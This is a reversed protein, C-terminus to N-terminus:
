KKCRYQNEVEEQTASDKGISYTQKYGGRISKANLVLKGDEVSSSEILPHKVKTVDEFLEQIAEEKTPIKEGIMNHSRLIMELFVYYNLGRQAPRWKAPKQLDLWPGVSAFGDFLRIVKDKVLEENMEVEAISELDVFAFCDSGCVSNSTYDGCLSIIKCKDKGDVEKVTQAPMLALSIYSKLSHQLMEDLQKKDTSNKALNNLSPEDTDYSHFRVNSPFLRIEQKIRDRYLYDFIREKGYDKIMWKLHHGDLHWTIFKNLESDYKPPISTVSVVPAIYFDISNKLKFGKDTQEIDKSLELGAAAREESQGGFPMSINSGIISHSERTVLCPEHDIKRARNKLSRAENRVALRGQFDNVVSGSGKVNIAYERGDINIVKVEGAKDLLTASRGSNLGQVGELDKEGSILYILDSPAYYRNFTDKHELYVNQLAPNIEPKRYTQIYTFTNPEIPM